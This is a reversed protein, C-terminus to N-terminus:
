NVIQCLNQIRVSIFILNKKIAKVNIKEQPFLTLSKDIGEDLSDMDGAAVVIRSTITPLNGPTLTKPCLTELLLM